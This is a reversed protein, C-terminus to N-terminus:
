TAPMQLYADNSLPPILFCLLPQSLPCADSATVCLEGHPGQKHMGQGAHSVPGQPLPAQSRLLVPTPPQPYQQCYIGVQYALQLAQELEPLLHQYAQDTLLLVTNGGQTSQDIGLKLTSAQLQQAIWSAAESV